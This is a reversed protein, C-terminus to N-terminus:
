NSFQLTTKFASPFNNEFLFRNSKWLFFHFLINWLIYGSQGRNVTWIHVPCMIWQSRCGCTCRFPINSRIKPQLSYNQVLAFNKIKHANLFWAFTLKLEPLVKTRPLWIFYLKEELLIQSWSHMKLSFTNTIERNILVWISRLRGSSPPFLITILKSCTM